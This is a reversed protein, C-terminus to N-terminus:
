DGRPGVFYAFRWGDRTRVMGARWGTYSKGERAFQPPAVMFGEHEIFEFGVVLELQGWVNNEEWFEFVGPGEMVPEMNYGFNPTMLPALAEADRRKAADRIMRLFTRFDNTTAVDVAPEGGNDPPPADEGPLLSDDASQEAMQRDLFERDAERIEESRRKEEAENEDRAAERQKELEKLLRKQERSM